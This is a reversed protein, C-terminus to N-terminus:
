VGKCAIAANATACADRVLRLAASQDASATTHRVIAEALAKGAARIAAYREEDGPGPAHYRFWTDIKEQMTLPLPPM